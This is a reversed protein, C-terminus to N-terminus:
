TNKKSKECIIIADSKYNRKMKNNNWRFTTEVIISKDIKEGNDGFADICKNCRQVSLYGDDWYDVQDLFVDNFLSCMYQPVRGNSNLEVCENACRKEDFAIAEHTIKVINIKPM